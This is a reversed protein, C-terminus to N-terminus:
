ETAPQREKLIIYVGVAILALPWLRGVWELVLLAVGGFSVAFGILGMIAAPILAWWHTEDTFVATLLTILVWGAAFGFMFLGGEDTAWGQETLTAGFAIGSLIGGPIIPGAHRVLIGWGILGVAPVLLFLPGDLFQFFNGIFDGFLFLIGLAILIVGGLLGNRKDTTNKHTSM